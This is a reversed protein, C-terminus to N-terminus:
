TGNRQPNADQIPWSIFVSNKVVIRESFIDSINERKEM